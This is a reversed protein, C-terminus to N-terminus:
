LRRSFRQMERPMGIGFSFTMSLSASFANAVPSFWRCYATVTVEPRNFASLSWSISATSPWSSVWMRLPSTCSITIATIMAPTTPKKPSSNKRINVLRDQFELPPPDDQDDDREEEDEEESLSLLPEPPPPAITTTMIATASITTAQSNDCTTFSASDRDRSSSASAPDTSSVLFGSAIIEAKRLISFRPSNGPAVEATISNHTSLGRSPNASRNAVWGETSERTCASTFNAPPCSGPRSASGDSVSSPGASLGSWGADASWTGGATGDPGQLSSGDRAARPGQPRRM